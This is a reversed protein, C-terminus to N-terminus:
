GGKLFKVFQDASKKYNLGDAFKRRGNNRVRDMEDPDDLIRRLKTKFNFLDYSIYDDGDILDTHPFLKIDNLCRHAFLLAGAKFAGWYSANHRGWGPAGIVVKTWRLEKFYKEKPAVWTFDTHYSFSEELYRVVSARISHGYFGPPKTGFKCSINIIRNFKDEFVGPNASVSSVLIVNYKKLYWATPYCKVRPMNRAHVMRSFANKDGCDHTDVLIKRGKFKHFRLDSQYIVKPNFKKPNYEDPFTQYSLVDTGEPAGKEIFEGLSSKSVTIGNSKEKQIYGLVAIYYKTNAGTHFVHHFNM